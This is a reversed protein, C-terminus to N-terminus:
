KKVYKDVIRKEGSSGFWQGSLFYWIVKVFIPVSKEIEARSQGQHDLAFFDVLNDINQNVKNDMGNGLRKLIMETFVERAANKLEEAGLRINANKDAEKMDVDKTDDTTPFLCDLLQKTAVAPEGVSAATPVVNHM